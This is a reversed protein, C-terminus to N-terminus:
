GVPQFSSRAGNGLRRPLTIQTGEILGGPQLSPYLKAFSMVRHEVNAALLPDAAIAAPRPRRRRSARCRKCPPLIVHLRARDQPVVLARARLSGATVGTPCRDTHCSQSICGLSCLGRASNCWDAGIAMARAMDFATM